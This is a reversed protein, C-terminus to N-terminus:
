SDAAAPAARCLELLKLVTRWNRATSTTGLKSDFYDNTLKSRAAGNPLHLYVERGLVRFEDPPSRKPDLAAIRAEAPEAALFAVHLAEPDAGTELFPNSRAVKALEAASRLVVPVSLGFRKAIAGSVLGPLAHAQASPARFLVNGSQIYTRVEALGAQALLEALEKMALRNKGGVNVGRLLALFLTASKPSPAARAPM